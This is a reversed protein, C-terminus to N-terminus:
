FKGNKGGERERGDRGVGMINYEKRGDEIVNRRRSGEKGGMTNWGNRGEEGFM